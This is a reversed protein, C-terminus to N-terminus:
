VLISFHIVSLFINVRESKEIIERLETELIKTAYINQFFVCRLRGVIIEM